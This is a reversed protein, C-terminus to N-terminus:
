ILAALDNAKKELQRSASEIAEFPMAYGLFLGDEVMRDYDTALADLAKGSPVLVLAGQVAAEYDIATGREDTAAFFMAKHQAVAMALEREDLAADAIGVEDLRVLDYWHRAFRDGRVRAQVCYVHAATAKEWFTREARMVRPAAQPFAVSTVHMASECVVPRTESPEGTSRAGFELQITPGVYGSGSAVPEYDVYIKDEELRLTAPLDYDGIADEILPVVEAKLWTPLRKRVEESWKKAQSRNPPLADGQDKLIDPLLERIDYTLDIDESFREIAGYAKSLSTGGKFALHEGFSATFVTQLAWVVWIDKELLHVPRGSASAATELAERKEDVSLGLFEEAM